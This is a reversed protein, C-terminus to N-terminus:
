FTGLDRTVAGLTEDTTRLAKQQSEFLRVHNMLEVMEGVADVNSGELFGQRVRAEAPALALGTGDFTAGDLRALQGPDEVAVTQVRGALVGGVTVDGATDVAIEGGSPPLTLPTGDDRLLLHGQPSRVTGDGDLVFAGARTLRTRGDADQIAFFGDGDLALDLANGTQIFEGPALDAVQGGVRTSQPAGEADIRERLATAFAQDRRYGVTGANALNNAVRDQRQALEAMSAAANRLRLLM